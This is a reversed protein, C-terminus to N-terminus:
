SKLNAHSDYVILTVICLRFVRDVVVCDRIPTSGHVLLDLSQCLIDLSLAFHTSVYSYTSDLDFLITNPRHCIM